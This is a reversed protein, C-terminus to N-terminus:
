IGICRQQLEASHVIGMFSCAPSGPHFPEGPIIQALAPLASAALMVVMVATLVLILLMRRM